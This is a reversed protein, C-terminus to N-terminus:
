RSRWGGTTPLAREAGTAVDVIFPRSVAWALSMGSSVFAGRRVAVVDLGVRRALEEWEAPPISDRERGQLGWARGYVVRSWDPSPAVDWVV